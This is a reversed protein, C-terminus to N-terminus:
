PWNKPLFCRLPQAGSGNFCDPGAIPEIAITLLPFETLYRIAAKLKAVGGGGRARGWRKVRDSSFAEAGIFTADM